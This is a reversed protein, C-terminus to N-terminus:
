CLSERHLLACAGVAGQGLHTAVALGATTVLPAPASVHDRVAEALELAAEEAGVHLVALNAISGWARVEAELRRLARSRTRVQSLVMVEGDRITLLPKIRLASGLVASLQSIRGGRHLHDLTDIMAVVRLRDLLSHLVERIQRRGAGTDALRAAEIVAWGLGMSLQGTDVVDVRGPDPLIQAAAWAANITGSLRGAVHVSIIGEAGEDNLLRSYTDTFQRLPPHATRPWHQSNGMRALWQETSLEVGDYFAEEGLYVQCPVIVIGWRSALEAPIDATSDTVIRVRRQSSGAELYPAARQSQIAPM